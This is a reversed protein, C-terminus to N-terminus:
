ARAALVVLLEVVRELALWVVFLVGFSRVPAVLPAVYAPSAARAVFASALELLISAAVLPAAIAVAIGASDALREAAVAFSSELRPAALARAVREAGGTELFGLLVLLGFLAGLPTAPEGLVPLETGEHAGRLNDVLGGAMVAAWLIAATGLALPLTSAAERLLALWFPVSSDVSGRLAPAIAGAIGLGLAVRVPAAVAGLGFAPVIIVLPMARAWALALATPDEGFLQRLTDLWPAFAPM